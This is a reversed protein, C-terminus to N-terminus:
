VMKAVIINAWNFIEQPTRRKSVIGVVVVVVVVVVAVSVAVVVVVVVVVVNNANRWFWKLKSIM